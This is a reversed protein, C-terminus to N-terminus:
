QCTARVVAYQRESREPDHPHKFDELIEHALDAAGCAQSFFVRPYYFNKGKESFPDGDTLLFTAYLAGTPKLCGRVARLLEAIDDAPMHTLVSQAWIYDFQRGAFTTPEGTVHVLTPQKGRLGQEDIYAAARDLCARSIDAGVYRGRELFEIFHIGAGCPGCGYDLLDADPTLGHKRLYDIQFRRDRRYFLDPDKAIRRDMKRAFWDRYTEAPQRTEEM